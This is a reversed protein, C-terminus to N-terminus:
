NEKKDVLNKNIYRILASPDAGKKGGISWQFGRYDYITFLKKDVLIHWEYNTKDQKGTYPDGFLRVLTEFSVNITGLKGSGGARLPNYEIAEIKM